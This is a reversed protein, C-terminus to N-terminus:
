DKRLEVSIGRYRFMVDGRLEAGKMSLAATFQGAYELLESARVAHDVRGRIAYEERWNMLRGFWSRNYGMRGDLVAADGVQGTVTADAHVVFVVDLGPAGIAAARWEGVMAATPRFSPTMLPPNGIVENACLAVFVGVCALAAVLAAKPVEWARIGARRAAKLKWWCVLNLAGIGAPLLLLANLRMPIQEVVVLVAFGALPVVGGWVPWKWALVLGVFLAAMAFFILDQKFGLRFLPPPGEGVVFALFFLAVLTGAIRGFWRGVVAARYTAARRRSKWEEAWAVVDAPVGRRLRWWFYLNFIAALLPWVFLGGRAPLVVFGVAPVFGGWFQWKWVLLLGGLLLALGTSMQLAPSGAGGIVSVLYVLAVLTGVMRAM